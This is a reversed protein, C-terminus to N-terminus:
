ESKWVEGPSACCSCSPGGSIRSGTASATRPTEVMAITKMLSNRTPASSGAVSSQPSLVSKTPTISTGRTPFTASCRTATWTAIAFLISKLRPMAIPEPKCIASKTVGARTKAPMRSSWGIVSTKL